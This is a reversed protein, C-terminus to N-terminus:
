QSVGGRGSGAGALRLRLPAPERALAGRVRGRSVRRARRFQRFRLPRLRRSAGHPRQGSVFRAALLRRRLGASLYLDRPARGPRRPFENQATAPQFLARAIRSPEPINRSATRAAAGAQASPVTKRAVPQPSLSNTVPASPKETSVPIPPVPTASLSSSTPLTSPIPWVWI